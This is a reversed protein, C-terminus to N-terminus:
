TFFKTHGSKKKGLFFVEVLILLMAFRGAKDSEMKGYFLLVPM